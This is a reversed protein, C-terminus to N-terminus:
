IEALKVNSSKKYIKEKISTNKQCHEPAQTRPATAKIDASPSAFVEAHKKTTVRCRPCPLLIKNLCNFHISLSTQYM